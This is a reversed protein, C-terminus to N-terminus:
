PTVGEIEYLIAMNQVHGHVVDICKSQANTPAARISGAPFLAVMLALAFPFQSGSASM